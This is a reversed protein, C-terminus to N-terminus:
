GRPEPTAALERLRQGALDLAAELSGAEERSSVATRLTIPLFAGDPAQIFQAAAAARELYVRAGNGDAAPLVAAFIAPDLRAVLDSARASDRIATAVTRILTGAAEAGHVATIRAIGTAEVLVIAVETHYRRARAEERRLEAALGTRNLLGTQEDIWVRQELRRAHELLAVMERDQARLVALLEEVAALSREGLSLLRNLSADPESDRGNRMSGSVEAGVVKNDHPTLCGNVARPM